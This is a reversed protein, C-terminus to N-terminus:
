MAQRRKQKDHATYEAGLGVRGGIRGLLRGEERSDLLGRHAELALSGSKM